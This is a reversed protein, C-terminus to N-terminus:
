IKSCVVQNRFKINITNYKNWGIQNLGSRYFAQLKRFKEELDTGKGLLIVHDGIRPILEFEQKETVYVQDIQLKFFPDHTIFMALRYLNTMLSDYYISDPLALINVQYGPNKRYSADIAGTAVLVRAAYGLNTPLLAGEEDLYFSEYNRNIIRLVPKRQNVEVFINGDNYEYVSARAVCPQKTIAREIRGTNIYGMPKGKLSGGNRTIISDIDNKTVLPDAAGYHISINVATCIQNYHVRDAYGVVFVTGAALLILLCIKLIKLFKKM